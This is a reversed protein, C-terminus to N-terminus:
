GAGAIHYVIFVAAAFCIDDFNRADMESLQWERRVGDREFHPHGEKPVVIEFVKLWEDGGNQDFQKREIKLVGVPDLSSALSWNLCVRAEAVPTKILAVVTQDDNIELKTGLGESGEDDFAKRIGEIFRDSKSRIARTRTELNFLNRWNEM